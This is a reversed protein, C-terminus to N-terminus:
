TGTAMLHARRQAMEAGYFITEEIETHVRLQQCISRLLAKKKDASRSKEYMGFLASVRAHDARWMATAEQPKSFKRATTM